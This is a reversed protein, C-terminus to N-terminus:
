FSKHPGQSGKGGEYIVGTQCEHFSENMSFIFIYSFFLKM